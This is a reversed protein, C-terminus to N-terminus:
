AGASIAYDRKRLTPLSNGSFRFAVHTGIRGVAAKDDPVSSNSIHHQTDPTRNCSKVYM